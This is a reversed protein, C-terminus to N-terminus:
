ESGCAKDHNVNALKKGGHTIGECNEALFNEPYDRQEWDVRQNMTRQSEAALHKLQDTQNPEFNYGVSIQLRPDERCGM